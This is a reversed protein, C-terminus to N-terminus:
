IRHVDMEDEDELVQLKKVHNSQMTKVAFHEILM